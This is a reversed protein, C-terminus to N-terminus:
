QLAGMVEDVMERTDHIALHSYRKTMQTSSHGLLVGVEFLSRGARVLNSAATHRLDHFRLNPLRAKTTADFWHHRFAFPQSKSISSPFILSDNKERFRMLQEVVPKTLPLLRPKGNKTQKLTATRHGFDIDTWRLRLLEGRRAGTTLAMLVLMYMREWSATKCVNLLAAQEESTLFRDKPRNEKFRAVSEKRVPNAFGLRKYDPHTIFVRLCTSLASKYRNVTSGTVSKRGGIRRIPKGDSNTPVPKDGHRGFRQLKSTADDIMFEDVKTVAVGAFQEAWWWLKGAMDRDRCPYTELFMGVWKEFTPIYAAAKGLKRHLETNGEVERVFADADKKRTFSDFVDPMGVRRIQVQWRGSPLKRISAM